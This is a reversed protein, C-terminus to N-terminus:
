GFQCREATISVATISNVTELKGNRGWYKRQGFFLINRGWYQSGLALYYGPHKM